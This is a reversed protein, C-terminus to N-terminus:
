FLKKRRSNGDLRCTVVTGKKKGPGIELTAGIARARYQMIRLGMAGKKPKKRSIGRGNDSVSLLLRGKESKLIMLIQRPSGHKVANTVAERAINYLHIPKFPDMNRGARACRFTCPIRFFERTQDALERLAMQLDGTHLAAPCLGESIRGVQELTHGILRKAEDIDKIKIRVGRKVKEELAKCRMSIGTLYQGLGDHLDQGLRIRQRTEVEALDKELARIETIDTIIGLIAREGEYAILKTTILCDIRRGTKTLLTCEYPPIETGKLHDRYNKELMARSEPAVATFFNFGTRNVGKKSYGMIKFTKENLFVFKGNKLIFIMNPSKESLNRFKEESERLHEITRSLARTREKVMRELKQRYQVLAEEAKKRGTIDHSLIEVGGLQGDKRYWPYAAQLLCLERGRCDTGWLETEVKTQETMAQSVDAVMRQFSEPRFFRQIVEPGHGIIDGASLDTLHLYHNNIFLFKGNTDIRAVTGPLNDVLTRYKEESERLREAQFAATKNEIM